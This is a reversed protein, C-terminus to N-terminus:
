VFPKEQFNTFQKLIYIIGNLFFFVVFVKTIVLVLIVLVQLIWM